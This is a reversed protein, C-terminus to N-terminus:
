RMGLKADNNMLDFTSYGYYAVLTNSDSPWCGIDVNRHVKRTKSNQTLAGNFPFVFAKERYSVKEKRNENENWKTQRHSCNGHTLTFRAIVQQKKCLM